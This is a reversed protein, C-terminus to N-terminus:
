RELVGYAHELPTRLDPNVAKWGPKEAAKWFAKQVGEHQDNFDHFLIFKTVHLRMEEFDKLAADESHTGDILGIDFKRDKIAEPWPPHRQVHLHLKTPDLGANEWNARVFEPTARKRRAPYDWHDICHVECGALGAVIASGGWKTGIEVYTKGQSAIHFLYEPDNRTMAGRGDLMKANLKQLTIL